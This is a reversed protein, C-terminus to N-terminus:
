EPTSHVQFTISGHQTFKVANSLLHHLIQRLRKVDALIGTPLHLDPEYHFALGKERAQDSFWVVLDKLLQGEYDFLTNDMDILALHTM